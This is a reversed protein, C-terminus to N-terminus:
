LIRAPVGVATAGAPVDNLVVANAGIKAGDGISIAGLCAAGAGVLVGDGLAPAGPLGGRGGLVANAQIICDRGIVTEEHLVVGQGGHPFRTGAGIEATYPVTAAFVVRIVGKFFAPLLPVHHLYLWRAMRYLRMM